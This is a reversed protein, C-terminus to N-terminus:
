ETFKEVGNYVNIRHYALYKERKDNIFRNIDTNMGTYIGLRKQNMPTIFESVILNGNNEFTILGKDFLADYTPSFIFGNNYDLKENDESVSWPKIHSAILLREDNIKTFPCYPMDELLKVRYKGQGVRAKTLQIKKNESKNSSEIKEIEKKEISNLPQEKVIENSYNVIPKFYYFIRNDSVRKLKLISMYSISPIGIERLNKYYVSNSNIYVRPPRVNSRFFTFDLREPYSKILLYLDDWKDYLSNTIDKIVKVGNETKKGYYISSPEKFEKKVNELFDLFDRKLFFSNYDGVFTNFFKSINTSFNGVYLKAEGNGTGTKNVLFSDALTINNLADLVEYTENAIIVEMICGMNYMKNKVVLWRVFNINM